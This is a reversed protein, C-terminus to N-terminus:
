MGTVQRIVCVGAIILLFGVNYLMTMSDDVIYSDSDLMAFNLWCNLVFNLVLSESNQLIISQISFLYSVVHFLYWSYTTGLDIGIVTGVNEKGKSKSDEDDAYVVILLLLVAVSSCLWKREM